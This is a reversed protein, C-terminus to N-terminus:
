PGTFPQDGADEHDAVAHILGSLWSALPMGARRAAGRAAEVAEPSMGTIHWIHDTAHADSATDSTTPDPSM